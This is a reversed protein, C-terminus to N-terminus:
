NNVALAAAIRNRLEEPKSYQKATIAIEQKDCYLDPFWGKLIFMLLKENPPLKKVVVNSRHLIPKGDADKVMEGDKWEPSYTEQVTEDGFIASKIVVAHLLDADHQCVKFADAFDPDVELTKRFDNCGMRLKQRIDRMKEGSHFMELIRDQDKKNLLKGTETTKPKTKKM